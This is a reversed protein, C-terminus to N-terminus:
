INQLTILIDNLIISLDILNQQSFLDINGNLVSKWYEEVFIIKKYVKESRNM